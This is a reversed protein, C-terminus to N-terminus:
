NGWYIQSEIEGTYRARLKELLEYEIRLTGRGSGMQLGSKLSGHFDSGGTVLLDHKIALRLFNGTDQESNESYIAEIGMLGYSKLELLIEDLEHYTKQLFIPHALVPIGGAKRIAQIGVEPTLEFRKFYAKGNKSLYKEFADDIDRAYGKAVLVKAIHPRGVIDGVAAAQVDEITIDVNLENLKNIIKQNRSNRGEIVINLEKKIATYKNRDPFYGLIHMEPKYNVSIEIGPVVEVGLRDGEELAEAVGEVTDHDTLAIASLGQKKAERVLEIPSMSGDSATSHTHMDITKIM